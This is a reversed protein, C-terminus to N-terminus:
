KKVEETEVMEKVKSNRFCLLLAEPTHTDKKHLAQPEGLTWGYVEGGYTNIWHEQDLTLNMCCSVEADLFREDEDTFKKIQELLDRVKSM